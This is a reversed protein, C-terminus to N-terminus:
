SRKLSRLSGKIYKGTKVDYNYIMDSSVQCDTVEVTLNDEYTDFTFDTTGLCGANGVVKKKDQEFNDQDEKTEGLPIRAGESTFLAVQWNEYGKDYSLAIYGSEQAFDLIGTAQTNFSFIKKGLDNPFDSSLYIEYNDVDPKCDTVCSKFVILKKGDAVSYIEEIQSLNLKNNTTAITADPPTPTPSQPNNVLAKNVSYSGAFYGGAIGILFILAIIPLILKSKKNNIPQNPQTAVSTATPEEM